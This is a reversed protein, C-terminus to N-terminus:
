KVQGTAAREAPLNNKRKDLWWGYEPNWMSFDADCGLEQAAHVPWFPDYLAQRGIAILDAVGSQLIAEAQPGDLILGVAMTPIKAGGKVAAAFPLLPPTVETVPVVGIATVAPVVGTTLM